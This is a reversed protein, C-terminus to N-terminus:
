KTLCKGKNWPATGKKSESIKDRTKQTVQHGLKAKRMKAITEPTHKRGMFPPTLNVPAKAWPHKTGRISAAIKAKTIESRHTGLKAARQLARTAESAVCGRRADAIRQRSELPPNSVGDGGDTKNTLNARGYFAIRRVEEALAAKEDDTRFVVVKTINFGAEHLKRIKACVHSNFGRRANREHHHVRDRQGKGVYFVKGADDRLEYVYFVGQNATEHTTNM